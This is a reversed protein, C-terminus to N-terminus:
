LQNCTICVGIGFVTYIQTVLKQPFLHFRYVKFKKVFVPKFSTFYVTFYHMLFSISPSQCGATVNVKSRWFRILDNTPALLYERDLKM